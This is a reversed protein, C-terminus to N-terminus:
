SDRIRRGAHRAQLGGQRRQCRALANAAVQGNRVVDLYATPLGASSRVDVNVTDGARYIAKDLRVIVNEGALDGNVEVDSKATNGKADKAEVAADFVMKPLWTQVNQGGAMEVARQGWEGQRLQDAKPTFRFEALGAANTKLTAIVERVKPKEPPKPEANGRVRQNQEPPTGQSVKVECVAPGGDPYSAAVFVRNEMNPVLRGGEPILNIRIAQDSVSYTKNVTEAHDATDTVKVELQVLANGKQLPQGVFYDPLKIEFKAHGNADTKGKWTQFEKFQVDFTSAKVEISAGAVPKGFFYDSQLEAQITEKPMYYPKDSTVNVKFKPLVYRKVTVTKDAQAEGILARIHYDGMNVEDALEFDVAAIGFESTRRTRKFVKNGKADDIEFTLDANAVPKLDFPRLALARLHMVQGPQYLPKDTVLMVKAGSKIQVNRDLTDKGRDSRTNVVLTYSGAPVEPIQLEGRDWGDPGTKGKHLPFSKSAKDRLEVTVEANALPTTETISKVSHVGCRFAANSGAFFEQGCSVTTEHSKPAPADEAGSIPHYLTTAALIGLAAAVWGLRWFRYHQISSLERSM